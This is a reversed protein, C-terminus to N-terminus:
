IDAVRLTRCPCILCPPIFPPVFHARKVNLGRLNFSMNIKVVCRYLKTVAGQLVFQTELSKTAGSTFINSDCINFVTAFPTYHLM